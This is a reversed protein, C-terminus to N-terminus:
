YYVEFGDNKLVEKLCNKIVYKKKIKESIFVDVYVVWRLEFCKVEYIFFDIVVIVDEIM